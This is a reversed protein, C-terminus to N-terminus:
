ACYGSCNLREMLTICQDDEHILVDSCHDALNYRLHEPVLYSFEEEMTYMLAQSFPVQAGAAMGKLEQMYDPFEHEQVESKLNLIYMLRLLM